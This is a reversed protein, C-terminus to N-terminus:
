GEEVEKKDLLKSKEVRWWDPTATGGVALPFLGKSLPAGGEPKEQCM